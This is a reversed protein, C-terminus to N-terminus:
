LSNMSDESEFGVRFAEAAFDRLANVESEEPLPARPPATV